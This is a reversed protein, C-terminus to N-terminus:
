SRFPSSYGDICRFFYIIKEYAYINITLLQKNGVPTTKMSLRM